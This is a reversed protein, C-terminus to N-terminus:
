LILLLQSASAPSPLTLHPPSGELCSFPGPNPFTGRDYAAQTDAMLTASDLLYSVHIQFIPFPTLRTPPVSQSDDVHSVLDHFALARTPLAHPTLRAPCQGKFPLGPCLLLLAQCKCGLTRPLALLFQGRRSEAALPDGPHPPGKARGKLPAPTPQEANPPPTACSATSVASVVRGYCTVM